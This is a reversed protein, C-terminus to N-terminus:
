GFKRDRSERNNSLPRYQLAKPTYFHDFIREVGDALVEYKRAMDRLENRTTLDYVNDAEVRLRNAQQRYREVSILRVQM